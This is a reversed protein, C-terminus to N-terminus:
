MGVRGGGKRPASLRLGSGFYEARLQAERASGTARVAGDIVRNGADRITACGGRVIANGHVIPADCRVPEPEPVEVKQAEPAPEPTDIALRVESVDIELERAISEADLGAVFLELVDKKETKTM